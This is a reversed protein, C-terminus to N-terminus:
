AGPQWGCVSCATADPDHVAGCEPCQKKNYSEDWSAVEHGRKSLFEDILDENGDPATAM